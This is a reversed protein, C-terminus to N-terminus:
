KRRAIAVLLPSEEEFSIPDINKRRAVVAAYALRERERSLQSELEDIRKRLKAIEADKASKKSADLDYASKGSKYGRVLEQVRVFETRFDLSRWLTTKSPTVRDTIYDWGFETAPILQREFQSLIKFAADFDEKSTAM